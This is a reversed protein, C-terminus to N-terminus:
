TAVECGLARAVNWLRVTGDLSGSALLSGDPSFAVSYVNGTHGRLTALERGTAADWIKVMQDHSGTALRAGDPSFAVAAVWGDHGVLSTLERGSSVSWLKVVRDFGGTALSAGDPSFATSIVGYEHGALVARPKPKPGTLDWLRVEGAQAAADSDAVAPVLGSAAALLGGDPSFAVSWVPGRHDQLCARERGPPSTIDWLTVERSDGSATALTSGDPSFAIADLKGSSRVLSQGGGSELAWHTVAGFPAGEFGTGLGAIAGGDPAFAVAEVEDWDGRLTRKLKLRGGQPDWLKITGDWSGSALTRGDPSFAVSTVVNSHSAQRSTWPKPELSLTM